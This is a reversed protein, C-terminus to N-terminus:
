AWIWWVQGLDVLGSESVLRRAALGAPRACRPAAIGVNPHDVLVQGLDVLRAGTGGFELGLKVLGQETRGQGAKARRARGPECHARGM